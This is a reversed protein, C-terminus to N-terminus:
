ITAAALNYVFLTFLEDRSYPFIADEDHTVCHDANPRRSSIDCTSIFENRQCRVRGTSYITVFGLFRIFYLLLARGFRHANSSYIEARRCDQSGATKENVFLWVKIVSIDDLTEIRCGIGEIPKCYKQIGTSDNAACYLGNTISSLIDRKTRRYCSFFIVARRLRRCFIVKLSFVFYLFIIKSSGINHRKRRRPFLSGNVRLWPFTLFTEERRIDAIERECLVTRTFDLSKQRRM